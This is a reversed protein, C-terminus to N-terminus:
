GNPEQKQHNKIDWKGSSPNNVLGRKKSQSLYLRVTQTPIGLAESLQGPTSVGRSHLCEILRTTITKGQSALPPTLRESLLRSQTNPNYSETTVDRQLKESEKEKEKELPIRLPSKPESMPDETKAQRYRKQREYESQYKSWKIISIAGRPSITIRETELFRQKAKKWLSPKITLIECIQKDSYGVGNTLKIEGSDGYRGGGALTLLDIWVSRIAPVEERLTGELWKDCYVKIWTRSGM